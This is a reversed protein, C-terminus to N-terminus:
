SANKEIEVIKDKIKNLEEAIMLESYDFEKTNIKKVKNSLQKIKDKINRTELLRKENSIDGNIYAITVKEYNRLNENVDEVYRTNFDAKLTEASRILRMYSDHNKEIVKEIDKILLDKQEQTLKNGQLVSKRLEDLEQNVTSYSRNLHSISLDLLDNIQSHNEKLESRVSLFSKKVDEIVAEDDIEEEEEEEEVTELSNEKLKKSVDYKDDIYKVDGSIKDVDDLTKFIVKQDENSVVKDVEDNIRDSIKKDVDSINTAKDISESVKNAYSSVDVNVGPIVNVYEALTGASSALAKLEKKVNELSDKVSKLQDKTEKLNSLSPFKEFIDSTPILANAPASVVILFSTLVVFISNHKMM